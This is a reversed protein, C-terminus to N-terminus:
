SSLETLCCRQDGVCLYGLVSLVPLWLLFFQFLKGGEHKWKDFTIHTADSIGEGRCYVYASAMGTAELFCSVTINDRCILQSWLKFFMYLSHRVKITNALLCLFIFILVGSFFSTVFTMLIFYNKFVLTKKEGGREKQIEEELFLFCVFFM